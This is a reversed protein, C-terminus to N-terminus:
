GITQKREVVADTDYEAVDAIALICLLMAVKQEILEIVADLIRERDHLRQRRLGEPVAADVFAGLPRELRPQQIQAFHVIHEGVLVPVTRLKMLDYPSRQPRMTRRVALREDDISRRQTQTGLTRNRERHCQVLKAGVRRLVTRERDIGPM